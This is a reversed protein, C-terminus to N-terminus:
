PVAARGDDLAADLLATMADPDIGFQSFRFVEEYFCRPTPLPTELDPLRAYQEPVPARLWGELVSEDPRQSAFARLASAKRALLAPDDGASVADTFYPPALRGFHPHGDDDLGYLAYAFWRRRADAGAEDLHARALLAAVYVADHDPHGRQYAPVYVDATAHGKAHDTLVEVLAGDLERVHETLRQDAFPLQVVADVNAQLCAHAARAEAVRTAAVDPARAPDTDPPVGDSAFVVLCRHTTLIASAGLVEDDPHPAVVVAERM